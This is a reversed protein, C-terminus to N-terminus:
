KKCQWKKLLVNAVNILYKPNLSRLMLVNNPRLEKIVFGMIVNSFFQSVLSAISAGIAGLRPILMANLAINAFAGSLNLLILYRQKQEM